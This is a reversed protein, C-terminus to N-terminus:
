SDTHDRQSPDDVLIYPVYLSHNIRRVDTTLARCVSEVQRETVRQPYEALERRVFLTIYSQLCVRVTRMIVWMAVYPGGPGAEENTRM